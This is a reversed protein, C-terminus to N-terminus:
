HEMQQIIVAATPPYHPEYDAIDRAVSVISAPLDDQWCQPSPEYVREHGCCDNLMELCHGCSGSRLREM